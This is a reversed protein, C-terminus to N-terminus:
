CAAAPPSRHARASSPDAAPLRAPSATGGVVTDASHAPLSRCPARMLLTMAVVLFVAVAVTVAAVAVAVRPPRWSGQAHDELVIFASLQWALRPDQRDLDADLWRLSAREDKSLRM